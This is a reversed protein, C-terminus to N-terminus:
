VGAKNGWVLVHLQPLFIWHSLRADGLYDELLMNYQGLLAMPVSSYGEEELDEEAKSPALKKNEDLVPPMYNGVSLFRMDKPWWYSEGLKRADLIQDM